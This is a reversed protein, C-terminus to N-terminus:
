QGPSLGPNTRGRYSCIALMRPSSCPLRTIRKASLFCIFITASSSELFHHHQQAQSQKKREKQIHCPAYVQTVPCGRCLPSLFVDLWLIMSHLWEVIQQKKQKKKQCIRTREYMRSLCRSLMNRNQAFPLLCGQTKSKACHVVSSTHLIIVCPDSFSRM